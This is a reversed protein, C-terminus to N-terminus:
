MWSSKPLLLYRAPRGISDKQAIILCCHPNYIKSKAALCWDAFSGYKKSNIGLEKPKFPVSYPNINRQSAARIIVNGLYNSGFYGM